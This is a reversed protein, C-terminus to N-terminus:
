AALAREFALAAEVRQAALEFRDALEDSGRGWESLKALMGTEIRRGSVVPHGDQMRPDM